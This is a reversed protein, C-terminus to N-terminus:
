LILAGLRGVSVTNGGERVARHLAAEAKTEMQNVLQDTSEIPLLQPDWVVLGSSLTVYLSAGQGDDISFNEIDSRVREAAEHAQPENCHPLLLTFHGPSVHAIYDTSRLQSYIRQSVRRQAFQCAVEGYSRALEDIDDVSIVMLTLPNEMRRAWYVERRVNRRFTCKRVRDFANAYTRAAFM